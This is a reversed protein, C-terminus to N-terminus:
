APTPKKKARAPPTDARVSPAIVVASVAPQPNFNMKELVAAVKDESDILYEAKIGELECAEKLLKLMRNTIKTMWGHAMLMPRFYTNVSHPVEVTWKSSAPGDHEPIPPLPM